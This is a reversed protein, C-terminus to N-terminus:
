LFYGKGFFYKQLGRLLKRRYKAYEKGTIKKVSAAALDRVYPDNDSLTIKKLSKLALPDNFEGLAEVIETRIDRVENNFSAVLPQIAKPNKIKGLAIVATKRNFYSRDSLCQILIDVVRSDRSNALALIARRRAYSNNDKIAMKMLPEIPPNGKKEIELIARLRVYPNNDELAKILPAITRQDNIEGLASVASERIDTDKDNLANILMDIALSNNTQRLIIAANKKKGWDQNHLIIDVLANIINFNGIKPSAPHSQNLNIIGIHSLKNQSELYNFVEHAIANTSLDGPHGNAPNAWLSRPNIHGLQKELAPLLNLYNIHAKELLPIIKKFKEIIIDNSSTATLVFLLDINKSNCFRSFDQLLELYKHLNEDSYLAKEWNDYQYDHYFHETLFRNTYSVIFSISNPFILKLIKILPNKQWSYEKAKIEEMDPDNSVFGVILMDIDYQIGHKELFSMEDLTSWAGLGWSMVEINPYKDLIMKELKHNWTQEYPLGWGWIFSDGLIAIRKVGQKKKIDRVRDTFGYPNLNAYKYNKRNIENDIKKFKNPIWVPAPNDIDDFLGTKLTLEFLLLCVLLSLSVAATRIAIKKFMVRLNILYLM